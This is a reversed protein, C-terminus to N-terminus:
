RCAETCQQMCSEFRFERQHREARVEQPTKHQASAADQALILIAGLVSVIVSLRYANM